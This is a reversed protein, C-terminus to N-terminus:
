IKLHLNEKMHIHVGVRKCYKHTSINSFVFIIQDIVEERIRSGFKVKVDDYKLEALNKAQGIILVSNTHPDTVSLTSSFEIKVSAM